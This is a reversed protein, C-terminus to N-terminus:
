MKLNDIFSEELKRNFFKHFYEANTMTKYLPPNGEGILNEFPAIDVCPSPYCFTVISLREKLKNVVARHVPAKYIGNSLVEFIQGINVVIAGEIPQVFVWKGDNLVQLGPLHGCELLFTIASNDAHPVIGLVREPEPCPPFCNMRINYQGEEFSELLLKSAEVGLAMCIFKVVSSAMERMEESYRELSERFQPPNQPWLDLNRNQIPQTKLFIMDNWDLKTVFAQGYGQLTGPRQAWRMKEKFPLEFFREVQDRMKDLSEDSVGHNVLQFVGWNSCALHLKQLEQARTEANVLKAMDILPVRLSSDSPCAEIEGDERIYRPPVQDPRQIALEQVSPVQLSSELNTTPDAM